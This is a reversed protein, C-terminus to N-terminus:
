GNDPDNPDLPDTGSLVEGGDAYTDGDTDQNNPNTGLQAEEADTLGDGDADPPPETTTPVSPKDNPNNPNTQFDIVESYDSYGDNDSDADNPNTNWVGTEDGNLLGDGDADGM